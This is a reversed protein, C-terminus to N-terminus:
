RVTEPLVKRHYADVCLGCHIRRGIPINVASWVTHKCELELNYGLEDPTSNLVLKTRLEPPMPPFQIVNSM